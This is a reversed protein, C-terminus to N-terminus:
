KKPPKLLNVIRGSRLNRDPLATAFVLKDARQIALVDSRGDEPVINQDFSLGACDGRVWKVNAGVPKLDGISVLATSGPTLNSAQDIRFGGRSLDRVRHITPPGGGFIEVTASLMVSKRPARNKSGSTSDDSPNKEITGNM